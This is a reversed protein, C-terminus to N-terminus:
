AGRSAVIFAAIKEVDKVGRESEVGSSVDVARAGTRRIAEGVNEPALGGSLMWSGKPDLGALLRWDFTVGAGGPVAANPAPKADFLLIDAAGEFAVASRVDEITSVGIAKIVPLGFRTKVEHVRAPTENGHLQLLDPELAAVIEGLEEDRADATLAVKRIRRAARRGLVLATALDVHRPSRAFFVFGAMDAGAKITAELTEPTSLGCIKVVVANL